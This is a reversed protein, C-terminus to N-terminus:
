SSEWFLSHVRIKFFIYTNATYIETAEKSNHGRFPVLHNEV